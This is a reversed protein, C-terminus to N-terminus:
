CNLRSKEGDRMIVKTVTKNYATMLFGDLWPNSGIGLNWYPPDLEETLWPMTQFKTCPKDEEFSEKNISKNYDRHEFFIHEAIHKGCIADKMKQLLLRLLSTFKEVYIVESSDLCESLIMRCIGIRAPETCSQLPRHGAIGRSGVPM